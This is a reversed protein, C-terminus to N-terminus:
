STPRADIEWTTLLPQAGKALSVTNGESTWGSPLDEPQYGRPLHVDVSLEPPVVTGQPQFTLDYSLQDGDVTAAGEIHYKVTMSLTGDPKITAAHALWPRGYFDHLHADISRGDLEVSELSAGEALFPAVMLEAYRTFYGARPDRGPQAYPPTPNDIEVTLTADASGDPALTVDYGLTRRQLIDVKSGNLNQTFVGVYDDDTDSLDGAMGLAQLAEELDPDRMYVAFHGGQASRTLSEVKDALHGGDLLRDKFAPIIAENLAHRQGPDPYKDYSGVLTQVLNDATLTDYGPVELPGTIRLLDAMASVDVTIVGSYKKHFSADVARLLEPGSISWSPAFTANRLPMPQGRQHFPNGAVKQWSFRTSPDISDELDLSKTLELQGHDTTLGALSLAAGGSYRLEAPNLMALLYRHPGDMGFLTPLQAVLPAAKRYAEAMPHIQDLASDRSSRISGGILPTDGQVKQLAADATELEAGAQQLGSVLVKLTAPSVSGDQMLTAHDGAVQPYLQVGIDAVDATSDLASTMLRVDDTAGGVVPLVSWFDGVPSNMLWDARGARQTAREVADEATPYDGDQLAAKATELDGKAAKAEYAALLMPVVLVILIIVL